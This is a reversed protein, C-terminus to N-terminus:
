ARVRRYVGNFRVNTGGCMDNDSAILIDGILALDIKCYDQDHRARNGLLTLKGDIEGSHRPPLDKAPEPQPWYAEGVM